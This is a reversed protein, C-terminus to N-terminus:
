ISFLDFQGPGHDKDTMRLTFLIVIRATGPGERTELGSDEGESALIGYLEAAHYHLFACNVCPSYRDQDEEHQHDDGRGNGLRLSVM